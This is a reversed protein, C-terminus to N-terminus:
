KLYEEWLHKLTKVMEKRQGVPLMQWNTQDMLEFGKTLLGELAKKDKM